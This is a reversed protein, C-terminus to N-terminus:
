RITADDSNKGITTQFQERHFGLRSGGARIRIEGLLEQGPPCEAM